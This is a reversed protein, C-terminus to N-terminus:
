KMINKWNAPLGTQQLIHIKSIAASELRFDSFLKHLDNLCAEFIAKPLLYKFCILAAYLDNGGQSPRNKTLKIKQEKHINLFPIYQYSKYDYFRENHACLNRIETLYMCMNGLDKSSVNYEKAVNDRINPLCLSYLISAEGFSLACAIVWLPIIGNHESQYHKLYRQKPDNLKSEIIGILKTAKDRFGQEDKDRYNERNLYFLPDDRFQESAYYSTLSKLKREIILVHRLLWSRLSADFNYLNIIDEFCTGAKYCGDSNKFPHKYGNILAFYSTEKLTIKALNKDQVELGKRCLLELQEDYTTFPKSNIKIKDVVLM